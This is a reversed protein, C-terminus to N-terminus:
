ADQAFDIGIYIKRIKLNKTGTEEEILNKVREAEYLGRTKWCDFANDTASFIKGNNPTIVTRPELIYLPKHDKLDVQIVYMEESLEPADM